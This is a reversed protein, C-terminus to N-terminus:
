QSRAPEAERGAARYREMFARDIRDKLRLLTRGRVAIGWKSAIATGDGLNLLSLFDRQPRYSRLPHGELRARLNHDLLPAARVAYVGAPRAGPIRACDGVAFLDERGEVRLSATGRIFGDAHVPLASDRALPHAAPGAVWLVADAAIRGGDELEIGSDVVRAVRANAVVDVGRARAAREVSRRLSPAATALLGPDSTVLTVAPRSGERALRAELCFALEVSGAGGGVVLLRFERGALAQARDLLGRLAGLLQPIPRSALALERVGPLDRGAVTSGIDLSAIDYALTETECEIRRAAADVRRAATERYRAGAAECLSPLDIELEERRYAGAFLGPVMGSYVPRPNPDLVSLEVGSLPNARWRRVLEVHAHGGGVLVLRRM